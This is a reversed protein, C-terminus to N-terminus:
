NCPNLLKLYHNAERLVHDSLLPLIISKIKCNLLGATAQSKFDRLAITSKITNTTVVPFSHASKNVESAEKRLKEFEKGFTNAIEFLDEESPDLLGRIFYAHESMIENWFNEKKRMDQKLNIEIGNQLEMLLDKYYIAERLVHDLLLPYAHTFLKCCLVDSILKSKVKVIANVLDIIRANLRFVRDELSAMSKSDKGCSLSTQMLTISSDIFIGTASQTAKEAELTYKTIMDDSSLVQSDLIGESLLLAQRLLKTFENKFLDAQVMLHKDKLSLSAQLFIFHEKIIRLFFLNLELSQTIFKQNCPVLTKKLLM